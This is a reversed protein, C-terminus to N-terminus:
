VASRDPPKCSGVLGGLSPVIILALGTWQYSVGLALTLQKEFPSSKKQYTPTPTEHYKGSYEISFFRRVSDNQTLIM